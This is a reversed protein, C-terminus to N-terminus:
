LHVGFHPFLHSIRTRWPTLFFAKRRRRKSYSGESIEAFPGCSKWAILWFYFATPRLGSKWFHWWPAHLHAEFYGLSACSFCFWSFCTENSLRLVPCRWDSKYFLSAAKFRSVKTRRRGLERNRRKEKWTLFM